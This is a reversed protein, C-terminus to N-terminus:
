GTHWNATSSNLLYSRIHKTNTKLDKTTSCTARKRACKHPMNAIIYKPTGAHTSQKNHPIASLACTPVWSHDLVCKYNVCTPCGPQTPCARIVPVVQARIVCDRRQNTHLIQSDGVWLGARTSDIHSITSTPPTHDQHCHVGQLM